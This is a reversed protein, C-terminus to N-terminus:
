FVKGIIYTFFIILFGFIHGFLCGKITKKYEIINFIIIGLIIVYIINLIIIGEKKFYYFMLNLHNIGCSLMLGLSFYIFDDTKDSYYAIFLVLIICSAVILIDNYYGFLFVTSDKVIFTTFLSTFLINIYFSNKINVENSKNNDNPKIEIVLHDLEAYSLTDM